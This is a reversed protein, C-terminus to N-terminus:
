QGILKEMWHKQKPGSTSFQQNHGVGLTGAERKPGRARQEARQEAGRLIRGTLRDVPVNGLTTVPREHGQRKRFPMPVGKKGILFQRQEEAAESDGSALATMWAAVAKDVAEQHAELAATDVTKDTERIKRNLSSLFGEKPTLDPPGFRKLITERQADILKDDMLAAMSTQEATPDEIGTAKEPLGPPMYDTGYARGLIADLIQQQTDPQKEAAAALTLDRDLQKDEESMPKVYDMSTAAIQSNRLMKLMEKAAVREAWQDKQWPLPHWAYGRKTGRLTQIGQGLQQRRALAKAADMRALAQGAPTSLDYKSPDFGALGGYPVTEIYDEFAPPLNATAKGFGPVAGARSPLSKNVWETQGGPLLIELRRRSDDPPLYTPV